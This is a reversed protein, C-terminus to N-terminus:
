SAGKGLKGAIEVAELVAQAKRMTEQWENAPVSDAVDGGGAQVFATGKAENVVITRITICTDINGAFDIYGVAGGYPGRRVTELEDLIEMARVKPAGSLTGAPIAAKLADFGSKDDLLEGEINSTIHMVRSFREVIMLETIRVTGYKSVRGLDNRGLDVLMVHEAREKPDALLERALAEDAERTAGRRRTGAIPRLTVKRGEVRIMVEPSSGVLVLDKMRLYFMFPSPNTVRLARYMNFPDAGTAVSLRQSLVVQFIDGAYIYEKCKEVAVEFDERAFNSTFDVAVEGPATVDEAVTEVPSALDRCLRDIKEAARDYAARPGDDEIIANCVVKVTKTVHDFVLISDYLGFAVDPLGDVDPPPDPLHEYYRVIDYAMFGVAGSPSREPMGEVPVPKYRSMIKELEALPDETEVTRVGDADEITVTERRATFVMFPDRGLFSYRGIDEGGTVSELLFSYDGEGLALHARVPTLTDGLLQRYVPVVNGKEALKAFTEYDPTYV